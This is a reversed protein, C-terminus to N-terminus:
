AIKVTTFLLLIVMQKSVCLNRRAVIPRTQQARSEELHYVFLNSLNSTVAPKIQLQAHTDKDEEFLDHFSIVLETWEDQMFKIKFGKYLGINEALITLCDM